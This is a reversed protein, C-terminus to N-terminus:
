AYVCDYSSRLFLFINRKRISPSIECTHVNKHKKKHNRNRKKWLHSGPKIRRLFTTFDEDYKIFFWWVAPLPICQLSLDRLTILTAQMCGDTEHNSVANQLRGRKRKLFNSVAIFWYSFWVVTDNINANIFMVGNQSFGMKNEKDLWYFIRLEVLKLIICLHKVM